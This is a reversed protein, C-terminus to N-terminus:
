ENKYGKLNNDNFNICWNYFGDLEENLRKDTEVSFVNMYKSYKDKLKLYEKQGFNEWIGKKLAKNILQKKIKRIEKMINASAM